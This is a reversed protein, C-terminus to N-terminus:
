IDFLEELCFGGFISAQYFWSSIEEPSGRCIFIESSYQDGDRVLAFSKALPDGVFHASDVIRVLVLSTIGAIFGYSYIQFDCRGDKGWRALIPAGFLIAEVEVHSRLVFVKEVLVRQILAEAEDMRYVKKGAAAGCSNNMGEGKSYHRQHFPHITEDVIVADNNNDKDKYDADEYM